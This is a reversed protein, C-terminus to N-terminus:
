AQARLRGQVFLRTQVFVPLGGLSGGGLQPLALRRPTPTASLWSTTGKRRIKFTTATVTSAKVNEDFFAKVNATRSVGTAGAAPVGKTVELKGDGDSGGGGTCGFGCNAAWAMGATALMLAAMAAGALLVTLRRGM